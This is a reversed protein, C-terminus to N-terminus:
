KDFIYFPDSKGPPVTNLFGGALAPSVPVLGSGPLDWVTNIRCDGYDKTM